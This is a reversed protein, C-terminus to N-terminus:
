RLGEVDNRDTTAKVVQMFSKKHAKHVKHVTFYNSAASSLQSSTKNVEAGAIRRTEVRGSPLGRCLIMSRKMISLYSIKSLLNTREANNNPGDNSM